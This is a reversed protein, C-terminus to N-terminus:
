PMLILRLRRMSVFRLPPAFSFALIWVCFWGSLCVCVRGRARVSERLSGVGAAVSTRVFEFSMFCCTCSLCLCDGGAGWRSRCRRMMERREEEKVVVVVEEEVREEEEVESKSLTLSRSLSLSLSSSLSHSISRPHPPLLRLQPVQTQGRIRAASRVDM